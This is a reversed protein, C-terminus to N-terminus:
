CVTMVIWEGGTEYFLAIRAYAVNKLKSEKMEQKRTRMDRMM